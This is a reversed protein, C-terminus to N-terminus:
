YHMFYAFVYFKIVLYGQVSEFAMGLFATLALFDRVMPRPTEKECWVVLGTYPIEAYKEHYGLCCPAPCINVAKIQKPGAM